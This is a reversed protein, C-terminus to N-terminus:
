KKIDRGLNKHLGRCKQQTNGINSVQNKLRCNKQRQLPHPPRHTAVWGWGPVM